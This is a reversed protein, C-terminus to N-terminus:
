QKSLGAELSVNLQELENASDAGTKGNAELSLYIRWVCWVLHWGAVWM